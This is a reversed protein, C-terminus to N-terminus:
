NHLFEQIYKKSTTVILNFNHYDNVDILESNEELIFNSFNDYIICYDLLFKQIILLVFFMTKYVPLENIKSNM